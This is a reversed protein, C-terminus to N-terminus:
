KKVFEIQVTQVTGSGMVGYGGSIGSSNYQEFHHRYYNKDIATITIKYIASTNYPYFASFHHCFLTDTSFYSSGGKEDHIELFYGYAGESRTWKIDIPIRYGDNYRYEEGVYFVGEEPYVIKYDGPFTTEGKITGYESEATITYKKGPIFTKGIRNTFASSNYDDGKILKCKLTDENECIIKVTANEIFYKNFGSSDEEDLYAARYLYINQKTLHSAFFTVLSLKDMETPHSVPIECGQLAIIFLLLMIFACKLKM